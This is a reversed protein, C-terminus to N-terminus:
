GKPVSLYGVVFKKDVKNVLVEYPKKVGEVYFYIPENISQGKKRLKKGDALIELTFKQDKFNTKKLSLAVSFVKIVGGDKQLEFNYYDRDLSHKVGAIEKRNADVSTSLSAVNAQTGELDQRNRTTQERLDSINSNAQGLRTDIEGVQQEIGSAQDRLSDVSSQDAKKVAIAELERTQESQEEKLNQYLEKYRGIERRQSTLQSTSKDLGTELAGIQQQSTELRESVESLHEQSTMLTNNLDKIQQQSQHLLYGLAGLVAVLALVAVVKLAVSSDKGGAVGAAVPEARGKRQDNFKDMLPDRFGKIRKNVRIKGEMSVEKVRLGCDVGTIDRRLLNYESDFHKVTEPL